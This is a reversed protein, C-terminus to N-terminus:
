NGSNKPQSDLWTLYLRLDLELQHYDPLMYQCLQYFAKNHEMEKLHALEHVVIMSLFDAPLRKFRSDILIEKKAKLKSGQVRSVRSHLGLANYASVKDSYEVKSLPASKKMFRNKLEMAFDYLARNSQCSNSDPYKRQLRSGLEGSLLLAQAQQQLTEPYHNLYNPSRKSSSMCFGNLM